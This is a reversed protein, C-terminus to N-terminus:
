ANNGGANNYDTNNGIIELFKLICLQHLHNKCAQLRRDYAKDDRGTQIEKDRGQQMRFLPQIGSDPLQKVPFADAKKRHKVSRFLLKGLQM